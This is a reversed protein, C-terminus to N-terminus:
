FMLCHFPSFVKWEDVRINVEETFVAIEKELDKKQETLDDLEEHLIENEATLKKINELCFKLLELLYIKFKGSYSDLENKQVKQLETLSNIEKTADELEDRIASLKDRLIINENETM